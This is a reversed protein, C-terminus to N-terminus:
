DYLVGLYFHADKVGLEAAREYLEVATTVDKELGHQGSCYQIGLNYIAVPDGVDVRKQIM